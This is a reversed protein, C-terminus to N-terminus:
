NQRYHNLLDKVFMWISSMIKRLFSVVYCFIPKHFLTYIENLDVFKTQFCNKYKTHKFFGLSFYNVTTSHPIQLMVLKVPIYKCQLYILVTTLYTFNQDTVWEEIWNRSTEGVRMFVIQLVTIQLSKGKLLRKSISTTETSLYHFFLTITLIKM